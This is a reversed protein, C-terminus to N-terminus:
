KLMENKLSHFKNWNFLSYDYIFIKKYCGDTKVYVANRKGFNGELFSNLQNEALNVIAEKLLEIQQDTFEIETSDYITPIINDYINTRELKYCDFSEKTYYGFIKGTKRFIRIREVDGGWEGCKDNMQYLELTDGDLWYFDDKWVLKTNRNKVEEKTLNFIRKESEVSWFDGNKTDAITKYISIATEKDIEELNLAKEFLFPLSTTLNENLLRLSDIQLELPNKGESTKCSQLGILLIITGIFYKKMDNKRRLQAAFTKGNQNKSNKIKRNM